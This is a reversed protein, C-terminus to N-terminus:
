MAEGVRQEAVGVRAATRSTVTMPGSSSHSTPVRIAIVPAGHAIATSPRARAIAVAHELGGGPRGISIPSHWAPVRAYMATARRIRRAPRARCGISRCAHRSRRTHPARPERRHGAESRRRALHMWARALQRISGDSGGPVPDRPQPHHAPRRLLWRRIPREGRQHAAREADREWDSRMPYRSSPPMTAAPVVAEITVAGVVM